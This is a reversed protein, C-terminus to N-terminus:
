LHDAAIDYVKRFVSQDMEDVARWSEGPTRTLVINGAQQFEVNIVDGPVGSATVNRVAATWHGSARTGTVSGAVIYTKTGEFNLVFVDKAPRTEIASEPESATRKEEEPQSVPSYQEETIMAPNGATAADYGGSETNKGAMAGIMLAAFLGAVVLVIGIKKKRSMCRWGRCSIATMERM